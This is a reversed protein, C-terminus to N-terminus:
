PTINKGNNEIMKNKDQSGKSSGFYFSGVMVLLALVTGLAQTILAENKEPIEILFLMIILVMSFLIIAGALIPM